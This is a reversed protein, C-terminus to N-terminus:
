KGSHYKINNGTSYMGSKSDKPLKMELDCGFSNSLIADQNKVIHVADINSLTIGDQTITLTKANTDYTFVMTAM